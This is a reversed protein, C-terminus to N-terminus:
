PPSSNNQQQKNTQQKNTQKTKHSKTSRKQYIFKVTKKVKSSYKGMTVSTRHVFIM